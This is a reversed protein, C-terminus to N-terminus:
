LYLLWPLWWGLNAATMRQQQSCAAAGIGRLVNQKLFYQETDEVSFGMLMFQKYLIILNIEICSSMSMICITSTEAWHSWWIGRPLFVPLDWGAAWSMLQVIAHIREWKLCRWSSNADHQRLDVTIINSTLFFRLVESSYWALLLPKSRLFQFGRFRSVIKSAKAGVGPLVVQARLWWQCAMRSLNTWQIRNPHM